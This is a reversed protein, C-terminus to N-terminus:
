SEAYTELLPDLLVGAGHAEQWDETRLFGIMSLPVLCGGVGDRDGATLPHHKARVSAPGV